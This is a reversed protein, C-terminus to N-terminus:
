IRLVFDSVFEFISFCFYRVFHLFQQTTPTKDGEIDLHNSEAESVMVIPRLGSKAVAM